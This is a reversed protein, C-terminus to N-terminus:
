PAPPDRLRPRKHHAFTPPAASYAAWLSSGAGCRLGYGKGACICAHCQQHHSYYANRLAQWDTAHNPNEWTNSMANQSAKATSTGTPAQGNQAINQGQELTVLRQLDAKYPRLIQVWKASTQPAAKIHLRADKIFFQVGDARATKLLQAATM